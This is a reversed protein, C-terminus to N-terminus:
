KRGEVYSSEIENLLRGIEKDHQVINKMEDSASENRSLIKADFGFNQLLLAIIKASLIVKHGFLLINNEVLKEKSIGEPFEGEYSIIKEIDPFALRILGGKKLVRKAEKFFNYIQHSTLHEIVHELYILSVSNNTFPLEDRLDFNPLDVNLWGDIKYKYCGFHVKLEEEEVIPLVDWLEPGDIKKAFLNSGIILGDKTLLCNEEAWDYWQLMLRGSSFLVAKGFEKGDKCFFGNESFAIDGKWHTHKASFISGEGERRLEFENM